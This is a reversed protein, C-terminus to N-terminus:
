LFYSLSKKKLSLGSDPTDPLPDTKNTRLPNRTRSIVYRRSGNPGRPALRKKGNQEIDTVADLCAKGNEESTDSESDDSIERSSCSKRIILKTRTSYSGPFSVIFLLLLYLHVLALIIKNITPHIKMPGIEDPAHYDEGFWRSLPYGFVRGRPARRTPEILSQEEDPIEPEETQGSMWRSISSLTEEDRSLLKMFTAPAAVTHKVMLDRRRDAEKALEKAAEGVARAANGAHEAAMTASRKTVGAMEMANSMVADRFGTMATMMFNSQGSPKPPLTQGISIGRVQALPGLLFPFGDVVRDRLEPSIPDDHRLYEYFIGEAIDPRPFTEMLRGNLRVQAVLSFGLTLYSGFM